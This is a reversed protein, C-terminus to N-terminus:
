RRARPMFCHISTSEEDDTLNNFLRSTSSLKKIAV